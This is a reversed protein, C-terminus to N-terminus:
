ATLYPTTFVVALAFRSSSRSYPSKKRKYIYISCLIEIGIYVTSKNPITPRSSTCLGEVATRYDIRAAQIQINFLETDRVSTLIQVLLQRFLAKYPIESASFNGLFVSTNRYNSVGRPVAGFLQQQELATVISRVSLGICLALRDFPQHRVQPRIPIYTYTYTYLYIIYTTYQM